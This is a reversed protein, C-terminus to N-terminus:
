IRSSPRLNPQRLLHPRIKRLDVEMDCMLREIIGGRVRDENSLTVGRITALQGSRIARAYGGVDPANQVYGQPLGGISSAGFGLLAAADDTTYGQFNRHLDGAATAMALTDDPLAFHDIGIAAYGHASFSM